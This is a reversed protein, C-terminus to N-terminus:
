KVAKWTFAGKGSNRWQALGHYRGYDLCEEVLPWLKDDTLTITCTLTSGAPVTESHAIATRSGTPGDTRLPRQCDGMPGSLKIPIQREKVFICGDVIKKYAKCKSSETGPARRLLGISDKFFGRLQYDYMYPTGDPLRPFVTMGREVVEAVGDEMIEEQMTKADPAKSAIFKEHIDPDAPMMGLAEETLTITIKHEFLQFAM